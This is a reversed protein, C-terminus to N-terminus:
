FCLCFVYVSMAFVSFLELAEFALAAASPVPLARM